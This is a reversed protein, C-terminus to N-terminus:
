ADSFPNGDGRTAESGTQAHASYATSSKATQDIRLKLVLLDADVDIQCWLDVVVAFYRHMDLDFDGVHGVEHVEPADRLRHDPLALDTM